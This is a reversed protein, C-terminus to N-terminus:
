HLRLPDPRELYAQREAAAFAEERGRIQQALRQGEVIAAEAAAQDGNSNWLAITFATPRDGKMMAWAVADVSPNDELGVVYRTSTDIGAELLTQVYDPSDGGIALFLPNEILRNTNFGAGESKLVLVIEKQSRMCAIALPNEGMRGKANVDFGVSILYRVIDASGYACAYNLWHGYKLRKPRLHDPFNEFLVKLSEVEGVNIASMIRLNPKDSKAM